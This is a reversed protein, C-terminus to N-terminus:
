NRSRRARTWQRRSGCTLLVCCDGSISTALWVQLTSVFCKPRESPWPLISFYLHQLCMGKEMLDVLDVILEQTREVAFAPILLAGQHAHAERVEGALRARRAQPTISPRDVDGYTSEVIIYDFGTPAEPDPELLKSDPGIDGSVLIRLPKDSVGAESFELEISASGLLHGANWYRARVDSGAEFWTEYDVPRFSDLSAVADAKTYIPEVLERGGRPTVGISPKM